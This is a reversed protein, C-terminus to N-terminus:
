GAAAKRESKQIRQREELFRVDLASKALADAFEPDQMSVERLASAAEQGYVLAILPFPPTM